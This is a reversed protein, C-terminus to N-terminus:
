RHGYLAYPRSLTAAHNGVTSRLRAEDRGRQRIRRRLGSAEPGGGHTGASSAGGGRAYSTRIAVAHNGGRSYICTRLEAREHGDSRFSGSGFTEDPSARCDLDAARPDVDDGFGTLSALREIATPWGPTASVVGVR